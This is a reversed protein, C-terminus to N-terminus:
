SDGGVPLSQKINLPLYTIELQGAAVGDIRYMGDVIDGPAVTYVRDGMSLIVVRVSSDAYQGLYAFPLPPASPPPPPLVPAPPPPPPAVYWSTAGFPNGPPTEAEKHAASQSLRELEVHIAATRVPERPTERIEPGSRASTRVVAGSLDDFGNKESAGVSVLSVAAICIGILPRSLTM